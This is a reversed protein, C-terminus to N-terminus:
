RVQLKFLVKDLTHSEVTIVGPAAIPTLTLTSTGAKYEFEQEPSSHVHIEGPSDATVHLSIPQGVSAQIVSGNPTTQDGKFTVDIVLPEASSGSGGSSNSGGCGALGLSAVLVLIVAAILHHLRRM